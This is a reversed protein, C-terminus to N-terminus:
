NAVCCSCGGKDSSQKAQQSFSKLACNKNQSQNAALAMNAQVSGSVILFSALTIGTKVVNKTNLKM